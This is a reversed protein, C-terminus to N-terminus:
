LSDLTQRIAYILAYAGRTGLINCHAHNERFMDWDFFYLRSDTLPRPSPIFRRVNRCYDAYAQGYGRKLRTEERQVRHSMYLWYIVTYAVVLWLNGLLGVFGLILLYRGLHMPNRCVLYPGRVTLERNKVLSAFCWTQILQGIMSVALAPLLWRTDMYHAVPVLLAAALVFRGKFLGRRLTPNSFLETVVNSM